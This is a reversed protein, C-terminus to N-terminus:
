TQLHNLIRDYVDQLRNLNWPIEIQFVPIAYIKQSLYKFRIQKQFFLNMESALRLAIFKDMGKLMTIEIEADANKRVLKYIAHIPKPEKVADEVFFGLDEMKRYPRHHPHSPIAYILGNKEYVAVKDDSILRHGCKLFFDTMTSKGGFSEAIFLISGDDVEVAGAHLFHYKEEITFYMPLIIHLIWYELLQFTFKEQPIYQIKLDGSNWFFIAVGVVEFEWPQGNQTLSFDRDTRLYNDRGQNNFFTIEYLLKHELEYCSTEQVTITNEFSGEVKKGNELKPIFKIYHNYAIM